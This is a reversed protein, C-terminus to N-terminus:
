GTEKKVNNMFASLSPIPFIEIEGSNLKAVIHVVLAFRDIHFDYRDIQDVHRQVGDNNLLTIDLKRLDPLQSIKEQISRRRRYMYCKVANPTVGAAEAIIPYSRPITRGEHKKLWEDLRGFPKGRPAFAKTLPADM